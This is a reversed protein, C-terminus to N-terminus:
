HSPSSSPKAAGQSAPTSVRVVTGNTLSDSPNVIVKDSESVGRLIESQVGFDRGAEVDRLQVAGNPDVVAVQLSKGRFILTNDPLTLVKELVNEPLRITGYSGPLIENNSNDVQLQVLMTRSDPSVAGSTSIVTGPYTKASRAGVQVNFTQGVKINPAEQQPVRFYVRLPNSQQIHFMEFNTSNATIRDGVNINRVTIFGAFPAAIRQFAVQQELYRVNAESANVNAQNTGQSTAANEADLTSIVAGKYLEQYRTNTDKALAFSKQALAAQARAQDLQQQLDPVDIEALLQGQEVHAGIDVLWSKVYGNVRSYISAEQWPKIEAPLDLGSAPITPTPSVVAVTPIALEANEAATRQQERWEPIFGWILAILLLGGGIIAMRWWRRRSPVTPPQNSASEVPGADPTTNM